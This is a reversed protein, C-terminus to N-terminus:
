LCTAGANLAKVAALIRSKCICKNRTEEMRSMQMNQFLAEMLKIVQGM